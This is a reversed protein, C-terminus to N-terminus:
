AREKMTIVREVSNKTGQWVGSGLFRGSRILSICGKTVDFQRALDICIGRYAKMRYITLREHLSLARDSPVTFRNKMAADKMNIDQNGPFLHQENCCPPCDCHHLVHVGAPIVGHKLAYAFRHATTHYQKKQFSFTFQGHRSNIPHHKNGHGTCSATWLWCADTDTKCVYSWFRAIVKEDSLAWAFAGYTGNYSMTRDQFMGPLAQVSQEGETQPLLSRSM